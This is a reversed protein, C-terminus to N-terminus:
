FPIDRDGGQAEPSEGDPPAEFPAPASSSAARPASSVGGASSILAGKMQAAFAKLSGGTMRNEENVSGMPNVWAVRPGFDSEEVTISVANRTLGDLNSPDNGPFTCGCLRLAKFTRDTTADTFYGEWTFQAGPAKTDAESVEFVVSVFPTGKNKSKGWDYSVAKATYKIGNAM